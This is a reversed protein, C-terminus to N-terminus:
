PQNPFIEIRITVHTSLWTRRGPLAQNEAIITRNESVGGRAHLAERRAFRHRVHGELTQVGRKPRGPIVDAQTFVAVREDGTNRGPHDPMHPSDVRVHLEIGQHAGQGAHSTFCTRIKMFVSLENFQNLNNSIYLKLRTIYAQNYRAAGGKGREKLVNNDSSAIRM